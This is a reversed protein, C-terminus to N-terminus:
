RRLGKRPFWNRRARPAAQWGAVTNGGGVLVGPSPVLQPWSGAERVFGAAGLLGEQCSKM